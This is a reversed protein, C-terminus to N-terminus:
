PTTYPAICIGLYYGVTAQKNFQTRGDAQNKACLVMERAIQAPARNRTAPLADLAHMKRVMELATDFQDAPKAKLWVAMKTDPHYPFAFAPGCLGLLVILCRTRM